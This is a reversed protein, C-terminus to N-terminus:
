TSMTAATAAFPSACMGSWVNLPVVTAPTGYIGLTGVGPQGCPGYVKLELNPNTLAQQSVRRNEDTLAGTYPPQKWEERLFLSPKPAPQEAQKKDQNREGQPAQAFAAIAIATVLLAALASGILMQRKM